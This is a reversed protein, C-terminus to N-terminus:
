PEVYRWLGANWNAAVFVAHTGDFSVAVQAPGQTMGAPTEKKSWRGTGPQAGMEATPDVTKGVGIAWGFLAYLSKPTGFVVTENAYLGVHAWTQGEDGSRLVGWGRESNLGAMFVVGPGPQYIQYSGHAHENKDVQSWSAGGNATRWTGFMGGSAQAMWLWTVRTTAASGTDVFFVGGTGEAEKMGEAVAVEHWTEGGDQSQALASREHGAILLHATDYPDVAPPYYDQPASSSGVPFNTWSVGGDMSRWFGVGSGRIGAWYILPPTAKSARPIVIGGAGDGMAAGDRGVNIPGSWTQGYDTSKWVGRCMFMAYFDSPSAPDIQVSQTGYNDCDGTELDIGQPTVDVWSGVPYAPHSQLSAESYRAPRPRAEAGAPVIGAM